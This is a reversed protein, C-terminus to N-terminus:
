TALRLWLGSKQFRPVFDYRAPISCRGHPGVYGCKHSSPDRFPLLGDRLTYNWSYGDPYILFRRAGITDIMANSGDAFQM